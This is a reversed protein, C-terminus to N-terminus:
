EVRLATEVLQSFNSWKAITTVPTRIEFRLGSEFRHCRDLKSAMTVDAYRSLKTYKREYEAVSLAGQKM